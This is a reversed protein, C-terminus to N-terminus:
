AAKEKITARTQKSVIRVIEQLTKDKLQMNLKINPQGRVLKFPLGTLFALDKVFSLLSTNRINLSTRGGSLLVKRKERLSEFDLGAIRLTGRDALFAFVDWLTAEQFGVSLSSDNSTPTFELDKGSRRKLWRVFDTYNGEEIRATIKESPEIVGSCEALCDGKNGCYKVCGGECQVTVSCSNDPATCSCTQQGRITVATLQSLTAIFLVCLVSRIVSGCLNKM